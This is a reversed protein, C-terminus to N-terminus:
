TKKLMIAYDEFSSVNQVTKMNFIRCHSMADVSNILNVAIIKLCFFTPPIWLLIM